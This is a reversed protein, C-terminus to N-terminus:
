FSWAGLMHDFSTRLVYAAQAKRCEGEVEDGVEVVDSSAIVVACSLRTSVRAKARLVTRSHLGSGYRLENLRRTKRRIEALKYAVVRRDSLRRSNDVTLCLGWSECISVDPSGTTENAEAATCPPVLQSSEEHPETLVEALGFESAFPTPYVRQKRARVCCMACRGCAFVGLYRRYDDVFELRGGGLLILNPAFVVFTGPQRRWHGARGEGHCM